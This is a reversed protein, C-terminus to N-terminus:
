AHLSLVQRCLAPVSVAIDMPLCVSAQSDLRTPSLNCLILDTGIKAAAEPLAAAPWVELSSGIVLVVDARRMDEVANEWTDGPLAEGFLVIDPKLINGCAACRPLDETQLLLPQIENQPYTRGCTLCSFTRVSGHVERITKSGARAHLDDINQTVVAKLICAQELEALAYHAANPQAQAMQRVLPRFWDYFREPAHHFTDLTCVEMPDLRQWLGTRASRFDPIGSPTSIGAGTFAVAWRSDRLLRAAQTIEEAYDPASM